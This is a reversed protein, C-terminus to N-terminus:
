IERNEIENEIKVLASIGDKYSKSGEQLQPTEYEYKEKLKLLLEDEVSSLNDLNYKQFHNMKM